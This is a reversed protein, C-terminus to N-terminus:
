RIRCKLTIHGEGGSAYMMKPSYSLTVIDIQYLRYVIKQLTKEKIEFNKKTFISIDLLSFSDLTRIDQRLGPLYPLTKTSYEGTSSRNSSTFQILCGADSLEIFIDEIEEIHISIPGATATTIWQTTPLKLNYM